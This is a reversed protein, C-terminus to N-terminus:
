IQWASSRLEWNKVSRTTPVNITIWFAPVIKINSGLKKMYFHFMLAEFDAKSMQGFNQRYFRKTLEEFAKEMDQPEFKVLPEKEGM